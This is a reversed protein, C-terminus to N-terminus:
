CKSNELECGGVLSPQPLTFHGKKQDLHLLVIHCLVCFISLGLPLWQLLFWRIRHAIKTTKKHGIEGEQNVLFMFAFHLLLTFLAILSAAWHSNLSIQISRRLPVPVSNHLVNPRKISFPILFKM